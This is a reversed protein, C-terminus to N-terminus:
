PPLAAAPAKAAAARFAADYDAVAKKTQEDSLWDTRWSENERAMIEECAQVFRPGDDGFRGESWACVALVLLTRTDTYTAIQGAIRNGQLYAALSAVISTLVAVFAGSEPVQASLAGAAVALAGLILMWRRYRDRDAELDRIRGAYYPIQGDEAGELRLAIYDKVDRVQPIPKDPTDSVLPAGTDKLRRSLEADGEPTGYPPVALLFRWVERKLAEGAFRARVWDAEQTPALLERAVFAGLAVAVASFLGLGTALAKWPVLGASAGAAGALVALSLAIKSARNRSKKGRRAKAALHRYASWATVATPVDWRNSTSNSM